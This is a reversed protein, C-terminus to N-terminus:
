QELISSRGVVQPKRQRHARIAVEVRSPKRGTIRVGGLKGSLFLRKVQAYFSSRQNYIKEGFTQIQMDKSADYQNSRDVCWQIWEPTLQEFDVDVFGASELHARYEDITPLLPSGIVEEAIRTEEENFVCTLAVMDEILFGGGEKLQGFLSNFLKERDSIHLIVLLSIFADFEGSKVSVLNCVDGAVLEVKGELGVLQTVKNGTIVLQEQIDVGTVSCGSKWALYRAPGGIGCGVDLIKTSPSLGLIYIVQDNCALGLYHYQDLHGAKSLLDMSLHGDQKNKDIWTMLAQVRWDYM